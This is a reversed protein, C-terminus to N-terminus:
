HILFCHIEWALNAKQIQEGPFMMFFYFNQLTNIFDSRLVDFQDVLTSKFNHMFWHMNFALHDTTLWLDYTGINTKLPWYDNSTIVAKWYYSGELFQRSRPVDFVQLYTSENTFRFLHHGFILLDNTARDLTNGLEKYPFVFLVENSNSPVLKRKIISKPSAVWCQIEETNPNYTKAIQFLQLQGELHYLHLFDKKEVDM